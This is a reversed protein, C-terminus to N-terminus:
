ANELKNINLKVSKLIIEMVRKSKEPDSMLKGLMAPVIHWSVGFQDKLWGCQSEKGGESLKDWYFDIEEQNDCPVVISVGENFTFAHPGSSEMAVFEQGNLTFRAHNIHGEM